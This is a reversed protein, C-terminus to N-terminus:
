ADRDHRQREAGSIAAAATAPKAGTDPDRGQIARSLQIGLDHLLIDIGGGVKGRGVFAIERLEGRGNEDWPPRDFALSVTLFHHGKGLNLTLDVSEAWLRRHPNVGM